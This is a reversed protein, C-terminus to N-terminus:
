DGNSKPSSVRDKPVRVEQDARRQRNASVSLWLLPLAVVFIWTVLRICVGVKAKRTAFITPTVRFEGGCTGDSIRLLRFWDNRAVGNPVFEPREDVMAVWRGNFQVTFVSESKHAGTREPAVSSLLPIAEAITLDQPKTWPIEEASAEVILVTADTADSIESMKRGVPGPWVTHSGIVAVFSTNTDAKAQRNTSASCSYEQPRQGILKRNNPGNWAEDFHYESYLGSHDLYPLM